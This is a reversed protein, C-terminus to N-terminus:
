RYLMFHTHTHTFIRCICEYVSLCLCVCVYDIQICLACLIASAIGTCQGVSERTLTYVRGCETRHACNVRMFEWIYQYIVASPFICRCGFRIAMYRHRYATYHRSRRNLRRARANKPPSGFLLVCVRARSQTCRAIMCVCLCMNAIHCVAHLKNAVCNLNTPPGAFRLRGPPIVRATRPHSKAMRWCDTRVARGRHIRM